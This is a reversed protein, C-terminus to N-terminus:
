RCRKSYSAHRMKNLLDDKTEINDFKCNMKKSASLQPM